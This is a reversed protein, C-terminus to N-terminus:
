LDLQIVPRQSKKRRKCWKVSAIKLARPDKRVCDGIRATDHNGPFILMKSLDHYVFDHSLIDYVKSMGAGWGGYDEDLADRLADHLPFDM